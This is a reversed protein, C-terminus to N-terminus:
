LMILSISVNQKLIQQIQEEYDQKKLNECLLKRDILTVMQFFVLGLSYIDGEMSNAYRANYEPPLFLSEVTFKSKNSFQIDLSLNELYIYINKTDIQGYGM